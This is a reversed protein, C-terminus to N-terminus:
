SKLGPDHAATEPLMSQVDLEVEAICKMLADTTDELRRNLEKNKEVEQAAQDVIDFAEVNAEKTGSHTEM